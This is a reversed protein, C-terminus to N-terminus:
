TPLSEKVYLALSAEEPNNNLLVTVTFILTPTALGFLAGMAAGAASLVRM